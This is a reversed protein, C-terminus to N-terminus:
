KTSLLAIKLALLLSVRERGILRSILRALALAEITRACKPQIKSAVASQLNCLPLKTHTHTKHAYVLCAVVARTHGRHSSFFDLDRHAHCHGHGHAPKHATIACLVRWASVHVTWVLSGAPKTHALHIPQLTTGCTPGQPAHIHRLPGM